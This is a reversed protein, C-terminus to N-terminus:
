PTHIPYVIIIMQMPLPSIILFLHIFHQTINININISIVHSSQVQWCLDQCFSSLGNTRLIYITLYQSLMHESMWRFIARRWNMKAYSVCLNKFFNQYSTVWVKCQHYSILNRHSVQYLIQDGDLFLVSLWKLIYIHNSLQM